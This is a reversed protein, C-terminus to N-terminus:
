LETDEKHTFSFKLIVPFSLRFVTDQTHTLIYLLTASFSNYNQTKLQLQLTTLYMPYNCMGTYLTIEWRQYSACLCMCVCACACACM